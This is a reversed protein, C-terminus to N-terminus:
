KGMERNVVNKYKEYYEDFQEIVMILNEFNSERMKECQKQWCDIIYEYIRQKIKIGILLGLGVGSLVCLLYILM